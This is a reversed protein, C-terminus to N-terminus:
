IQAWNSPHILDVDECQLDPWNAPTAAQAVALLQEFQEVTEAGVVVKSISPQALAFGLCAQLPNLRNSTLWDALQVWVGNWRDFQTPRDQVSMLLLGQLFVSRTHIEVGRDVLRQAWGSTFLRQDLLNYPAQVLDLSNIKLGNLDEPGYISVGTKQTLGQHKILQLASAIEQGRADKLQQPRHLLVAYVAQVGLRQLSGQIQAMVWSTVDVDLPVEPLKTVIRFGDVGAQGLRSESDGYAIATDLTDLGADRATRLMQCVHAAPVQGVTNAIGYPLGMQVTGLALRHIM